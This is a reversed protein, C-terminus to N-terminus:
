NNEEAILVANNSDKLTYGDSTLLRAGEASSTSHYINLRHITNDFNIQLKESSGLYLAM